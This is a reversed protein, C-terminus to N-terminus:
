CDVTKDAKLGCTHIGAAVKTYGATRIPSYYNAGWCRINNANTVGCAETGSLSLQTFKADDDSAQWWLATPTPTANNQSFVAGPGGSGAGYRETDYGASLLMWGMLLLLALGGALLLWDLAARRGGTTGQNGDPKPQPPTFILSFNLFSM